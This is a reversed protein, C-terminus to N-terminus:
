RRIGYYARRWVAQSESRRASRARQRDARSGVWRSAYPNVGDVDDDDDEEEDDDDSSTAEKAEEMEDDDNANGGEAGAGQVTEPAAGAGAKGTKGKGEEDAAAGQPPPGDAVTEALTASIAEPRASEAPRNSSAATLPTPQAVTIVEPPPAPRLLLPIRAFLAALIRALARDVDARLVASLRPEAALKLLTEVGSRIAAAPLLDGARCEM